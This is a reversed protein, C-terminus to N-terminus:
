PNLLVDFSNSLSTLVGELQHVYVPRDQFQLVKLFAEIQLKHESLKHQLANRQWSTIQQAPQGM